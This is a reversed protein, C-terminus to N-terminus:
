YYRSILWQQLISLINSVVWYLVLGSPFQLFVFLFIFPMFSIIRKQIPDQVPPNLKQQIFMTLSMIIPLIYYADKSSLDTIWFIFPSHRLEVSELLVCYLSIFVPIQILIPLCGGLPNVKEKKDDKYREKLYELKPQLDKMKKLSKFSMASLNFFLLKIMCTIIIISIGWNGVFYFIKSLLLFIVLAVPWFFGYDISLDLGPHLSNLYNKVKPGVFLKSKIMNYDKPLIVLNEKNLYKLLYLDNEKEATYIYTYDDSPILTSLFYNEIFAIWGGKVINVHKNKDIDDFSIKKYINNDTYLAAGCYNKSTFWSTNKKYSKGICGYFRGSIKSNSLNKVYVRTEIDYSYNKFIYIKNIVLFDDIKQNLVVVLESENDKMVYSDNEATYGFNKNIHDDSNLFGFKIFHTNDNSRNLINIFKDKNLNEYYKKLSLCSINGDNLSIKASILNTEISIEKDQLNDTIEKTMNLNVDVQKKTEKKVLEKNLYKENEWSNFLVFSFFFIFIWIVYKIKSHIM